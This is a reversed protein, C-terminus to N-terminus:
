TPDYRPRISLLRPPLVRHVAVLVWAWPASGLACLAKVIRTVLVVGAAHAQHHVDLPTLGMLDNAVTDLDELVQSVAPGAPAFLVGPVARANQELHRVGEQAVRGRREADGQRGHFLVADPHDEQRPVVVRGAAALRAEFLRHSRQSLRHEAPPVHGDVGHPEALAGEDRPREDTLDEDAPARADRVRGRELALQAEHTARGLLPHPRAVDGIALEEIHDAQRRAGQDVLPHEGGRLEVGVEGIERLQRHDRGQREHVRAERGVGERAPRPRVGVPHNGVVALDVGQAAVDVPHARALALEGRREETVVELVQPRHHVRRAAVRRHEVVHELRQHHAPARQRVRHHHHDRLGPVLVLAHARLLASEVLVVRAQHLGPITRGRDREAVAYLDAADEIAVPQSREAVRHGLSAHHDHRRLGPHEVDRRRLDRVLSADQGPAHEQDIGGLLPEDGVLLDLLLDRALRRVLLPEVLLAHKEGLQRKALGLRHQGRGLELDRLAGEPVGGFVQPQDRGHRLDAALCDARHARIRRERDERLLRPAQRAVELLEERLHGVRGDVGDALLQDHRGAGGDAGLAVEEIGLGLGRVLNVQRARDEVATRGLLQPNEVPGRAAPGELGLRHRGQEPDRVALGPQHRREVRDALLGGRRHPFPAADDDQRVAVVVAIARGDGREQRARGHVVVQQALSRTGLRAQDDLAALRALHVVETQEDAVARARDIGVQRELGDVVQDALPGDLDLGLLGALVVHARHHLAHDLDDGLHPDRRHLAVVARLDELGDAQPRVQDLAVERPSRGADAADPEVDEGLLGPPPMGLAVRAPRNGARPELGAALVAEAALALVVEEAGLGDGLELLRHTGVAVGGELLVRREDVVLGTAQV